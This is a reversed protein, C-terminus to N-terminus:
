RVGAGPVPIDGPSGFSQILLGSTTRQVYWTGISQRFVAPDIKGDGDFDGVVPLDTSIGFPLSYYTFDESRQIFWEGSSPRWVAVDTKGDGTFDGPVTRDTGIGFTYVVLGLNSRDIWWQGNSPRFIAIDATGDGDYDSPVPRDTSNGFNRITTGGGSNRVYWTGSSPRFVAADASRDGDYDAPVPVDSSTGFPFSNYTSDDSRLVFWEGNSPRFVAVDTKGDGTYDAPAIVDSSNGFTYAIVGDTSRYLWWQRNSPRFIALDSSGDGDFDYIPASASVTPSGLKSIFFDGNGVGSSNITTDFAGVTTPFDTTGDETDGTIFVNGSADIALRNARDRASGGIYTSYDLASGAENFEVVFADFWGNFTQDYAGSTTPFLTNFGESGYGTLFASGAPDVVVDSGIDDGDGGILTSYSLATGTPNFKTLFVDQGGNHTEDFAGSTTPFPNADLRTEGVVYASGLSDVAIGHGRDDDGSGLFSSYLLSSGGPNIKTLFADNNGNHTTDFAGPTTPFELTPVNSNTFGTIYANGASDVAIDNGQEGQSGGLFTSYVLASGAANLKSVFVDSSGNHTGDFAGPTTPYPTTSPETFGTVYANGTSDITLAYSWDFLGGGIFTSYVLASGRPDLKTIFVDLSGNHTTDYAGPTTPFHSAGPFAQGFTGGTIYANGSSDVAIDTGLAITSGHLFTSYVLFSGDASVKTVSAIGGGVATPDFTGPTSPFNISSTQGTIYADGAGDVAIGLYPFTEGSNGGIFTSYALNSLSHPTRVTERAAFDRLVDVTEILGIDFPSPEIGIRFSRAAIEPRNESRRVVFQGRERFAINDTRYILGPAKQRIVGSNTKIELDGYGNVSVDDAGDIELEILDTEAGSNLVFDYVASGDMAGSWLVDIGPYIGRTQVRGYNLVGVYWNDPNSGSFHNSKHPLVDLGLLDASPSAGVVRMFVATATRYGQRDDAFPRNGEVQIKNDEAGLLVFVAGTDTLFLTYDSTGQAKYKVRKDFQGCNEEFFINGGATIKKDVISTNTKSNKAADVKRESYPSGSLISVFLMPTVVRSVCNTFTSM